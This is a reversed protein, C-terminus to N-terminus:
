IACRPPPTTSIFPRLSIADHFPKWTYAIATNFYEDFEVDLSIKNQMISPIYILYGKQNRPFGIFIGRVGRQSTTNKIHHYKRKNTNTSIPTLPQPSITHKKTVCPCGFVRFHSLQPKTTFFLEYPTGQRGDPFNAGKIPLINFIEAAYNAAYYAFSDPLRAHVLLTRM